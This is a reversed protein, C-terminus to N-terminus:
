GPAFPPPDFYPGEECKKLCSYNIATGLINSDQDQISRNIMSTTSYDISYHDWVSRDWVVSDDSPLGPPDDYCRNPDLCGNAVKDSGMWNPTSTTTTCELTVKAPYGATNVLYGPQKCAYEVTTGVPYGASHNGASINVALVM